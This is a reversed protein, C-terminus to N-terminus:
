KSLHDKPHPSTAGDSTKAVRKEKEAEVEALAISLDEFGLQRENESLKKLQKGHLTHNLEAIWQEFATQRRLM